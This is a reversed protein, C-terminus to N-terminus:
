TWARPKSASVSRGSTVGSAGAYPVFDRQLAALGISAAWEFTGSAPTRM